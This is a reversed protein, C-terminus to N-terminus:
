TAKIVLQDIVRTVGETGGAIAAARGKAARSPVTGKLTVVHNNTEVNIDSDHLLTEDFFKTKVKATIWSDTITEGTASVAEKTKEGGKQATDKTVTAAKEGARQTSDMAKGAQSKAAAVDVVIENRVETVGKVTALRAAQAKESATRVAGKLTVIGEKVDVDVERAALTANKKLNAVIRSQLTSDDVKAASSTAAQQGASAVRAPGAALLV